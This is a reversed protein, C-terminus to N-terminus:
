EQNMIKKQINSTKTDVSIGWYKMVDPIIREFIFTLSINRNNSKELDYILSKGFIRDIIVMMQKQDNFVFTEKGNIRKYCNRLFYTSFSLPVTSPVNYYKNNIKIKLDKKTEEKLAEDYDLILENGQRKAIEDQKQDLYRIRENNDKFRKNGM